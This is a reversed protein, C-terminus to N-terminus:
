LMVAAYHHRERVWIVTILALGHQPDHQPRQPQLGPVRPCLPHVRQQPLEHDRRELPTLVLPVSVVQGRGPVPSGDISM